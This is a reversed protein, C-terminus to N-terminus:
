KASKKLKKHEILGKALDIFNEKFLTVVNGNYDSAIMVKFGQLDYPEYNDYSENIAKLLEEEIEEYTKGESLKINVLEEYIAVVIDTYKVSSNSPHVSRSLAADILELMAYENAVKTEDIKNVIENDGNGTLKIFDCGLMKTIIDYLIDYQTYGSAIGPKIGTAYYAMKDSLYEQLSSGIRSFTCQDEYIGFGIPINSAVVGKGDIEKYIYESAHGYIEHCITFDVIGKGSIAETMEIGEKNLTVKNEYPKYEGIQAISYKENSYECSMDKLNTYLVTLDININNAKLNQAGRTLIDKVEDNFKDNEEIVKIIDDWTINSLKMYNNFEDAECTVDIKQNKIFEKDVRSMYKNNKDISPDLSVIEHFFSGKKEELLEIGYKKMNSILREESKNCGGLSLAISASLAIPLAKGIIAKKLEKKM